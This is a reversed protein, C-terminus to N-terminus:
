QVTVVKVREEEWLLCTLSRLEQFFKLYKLFRENYKTDHKQDINHTVISLANLADMGVCRQFCSGTYAGLMRCMKTKNVLDQISQHIHCFRNIKKGTLHSTATMIKDFGPNEALEYTAAMCNMTPKIIPNNVLNTVRKSFMYLEFHMNRMSAIYEAKTKV